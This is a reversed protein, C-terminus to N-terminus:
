LGLEELLEDSDKVGRRLLRASSQDAEILIVPSTPPTLISADFELVLEDLMSQPPVAFYGVLDNKEVHSAVDSDKENPDSNLAVLVM